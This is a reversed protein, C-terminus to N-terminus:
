SNLYIEWIKLQNKIDEIYMKLDVIDEIEYLLNNFNKTSCAEDIYKFIIIEINKNFNNNM